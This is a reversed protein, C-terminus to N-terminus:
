DYVNIKRAATNYARQISEVVNMKAIELVGLWGAVGHMGRVFVSGCSWFRGVRLRGAV